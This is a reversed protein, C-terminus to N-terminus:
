FSITENVKEGYNQGNLDEKSKWLYKLLLIPRIPGAIGTKTLSIFMLKNQGSQLLTHKELTNFHTYINRQYAM